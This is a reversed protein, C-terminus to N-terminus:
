VAYFELGPFSAGDRVGPYLCILIAVVCRRLDRGSISGLRYINVFPDAMM